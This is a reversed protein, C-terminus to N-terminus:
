DNSVKHGKAKWDEIGKKLAFIRHPYKEAILWSAKLCRKGHKCYILIPRTTPTTDLILYLKESTEAFIANPIHGELRDIKRGVDILLHNNDDEILSHFKNPGLKKFEIKQAQISLSVFLFLISVLLIRKM